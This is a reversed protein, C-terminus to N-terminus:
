SAALVVVLKGAKLDIVPVQAKTFPLALVRGSPQKVELLDGAGHNFVAQVTGQPQGNQDEVALGILDAHYFEDEDDPPPLAERAVFLKIRNLKEADERTTVGAIQVVLMNEGLFRGNTITFNRGDEAFLSGYDAIAAPDETLSKLRLEGKLGVARGFEGLQILRGKPLQQTRAM